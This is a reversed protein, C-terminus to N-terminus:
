DAPKLYLTLNGNKATTRTPDIEVVRAQGAAGAEGQLSGKAVLEALKSKIKEVDTKGLVAEKAPDCEIQEFCAAYKDDKAWKQAADTLSKVFDQDKTDHQKQIQDLTLPTQTGGGCSSDKFTQCVRTSFTLLNYDANKPGTKTKGEALKNMAWVAAADSEQFPFKQDKPESQSLYLMVASASANDFRVKAPKGGLYNPDKKLKEILEVDQPIGYKSYIGTLAQAFASDAKELERAVGGSGDTGTHLGNKKVYAELTKVNMNPDAMRFAMKLQALHIMDAFAKPNHKELLLRVIEAFAQDCLTDAPKEHAGPTPTPTPSTEAVSVPTATPTATATPNPIPTPTTLPVESGGTSAGGTTLTSGVLDTYTKLGPNGSKEVAPQRNAQVISRRTPPVKDSPYQEVFSDRALSNASLTLKNIEIDAATGDENTEAVIRKGKRLDNRKNHTANYRADQAALDLQTRLADPSYKALVQDAATVKGNIEGLDLTVQNLESKLRSLEKDWMQNTAANLNAPKGKAIEKELREKTESLTKQKDAFMDRVYAAYYYNAMGERYTDKADEWTNHTNRMAKRWTPLRMPKEPDKEAHSLDPALAILPILLHFLSVKM